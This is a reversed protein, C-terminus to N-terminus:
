YKTYKWRIKELKIKELFKHSDSVQSAEEASQLTVTLGEKLFFACGLKLACSKKTMSILSM